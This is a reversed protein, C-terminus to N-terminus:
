RGKLSFAFIWDGPAGIGGRGGVAIVIYQRGGSMYTMPSAQAGAPLQHEWLTIGTDVDLARVRNDQSAGLFVLGGATTLPGGFLISGWSSADPIHSLSPVSGVPRQWRITGDNLSLAMVVGWPPPTCPVGSPAVFPTRSAVYDSGSQSELQQPMPRPQIPTSSRHLPHLQIVFGIRNGTTILLEREPDWALGSWNMGGWVGPWVLTGQLSPPTYMGDYRLSSMWGKCFTRDSPSLGFISDDTLTTGYLPEPYQPFPQSPSASEGNVDSAPVPREHVPVLPAGSSRDLLFIKGTKTGVVVAPLKTSDRKVDILLPQAAIDYDWLDHHVAQFGWVVQGSSGHVAVVSNAFENSSSRQGGYHEPAPSATPLFALDRATDVSIISWVNGGGQDTDHAPRADLPTFEWALAGTRTDFAKVRGAPVPGVGSKRVSSGIIVLDGLIAPPSTNSVQRGYHGEFDGTHLTVHGNDGFEACLDGTIADIAFLRADVTAHFIRVSCLEGPRLSDVWLAVGRSTLDEAYREAFDVKPNFSWLKRGDHARLAVVRSLPTSVYLRGEYHIPTTEFRLHASHCHGCPASQIRLVSRGSADITQSRHVSDFVDPPFDGMRAVWALRLQQINSRNIQSHRSYKTGAADAAYHTWDPREVSSTDACALLVGLLPCSVAHRLRPARCAM